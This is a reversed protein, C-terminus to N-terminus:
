ASFHRRADEAMSRVCWRAYWDALPRCLWQPRLPGLEYDIFVRLQSGAGDPAIEFGMRYRGIVVLRPVGTTAWTKLQPPVRATVTETLWLPMGFLQGDMRIESGIARGQGADFTYRMSSGLTRWSPKEMHGGLRRPDDLHEFLTSPLAGVSARHEAHLPLSEVAPLAQVTDM